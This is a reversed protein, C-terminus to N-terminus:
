DIDGTSNIVFGYYKLLLYLFLYRVLSVQLLQRIKPSIKADDLAEELPRGAALCKNTLSRRWRGTPGMVGLGRGIQREDDSCRRGLYFRCYWQFWGYPDCERIWGSSEWMDLGGGCSVHYTNVANNYKQSAIQTKTNLGEFWDSPFEKWVDHYMEHTVGSTISRFYTGGFSGLQLVEKPTLNPRFDPYDPFKLEGTSTDRDPIPERGEYIEVSSSAERKKSQNAVASEGSAVEEHLFKPRGKQRKSSKKSEAESGKGLVEPEVFDESSSSGSGKSESTAKRKGTVKSAMTFTLSQTTVHSRSIAKFQLIPAFTRAQRLSLLAILLKLLIKEVIEDLEAVSTRTKASQMCMGSSTHRDHGVCKQM